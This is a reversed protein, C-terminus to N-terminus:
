VPAYVAENTLDFQGGLCLRCVRAKAAKCKRCAGRQRTERYAIKEAQTMKRKKRHNPIQGDRSDFVHQEPSIVDVLSINGTQPLQESLEASRMSGTPSQLCLSALGEPPYLHTSSYSASRRNNTSMQSQEQQLKYLENGLFDIVARLKRQRHTGYGPYRRKLCEALEDSDIPHVFAIGAWLPQGEIPPGTRILLESDM